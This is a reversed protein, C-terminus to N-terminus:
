LLGFVEVLFPTTLLIIILINGVAKGRDCVKVETNKPVNPLYSQVISNQGCIKQYDEAKSTKCGLLDITEYYWLNNYDDYRQRLKLLIEAKDGNSNAFTYTNLNAYDNGMATGFGSQKTHSVAEVYLANSEEIWSGSPNYGQASLLSTMEQISKDLDQIGIVKTTTTCSTLGFAAAILLVFTTKKM